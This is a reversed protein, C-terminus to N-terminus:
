YSAATAYSFWNLIFENPLHEWEEEEKLIEMYDLVKLPQLKATNEESPFWMSVSIPRAMTKTNWDMLRQYTRTSDATVYHTFGVSYQGNNLNIKELSTQSLLSHTQLVLFLITFLRM